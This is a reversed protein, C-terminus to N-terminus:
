VNNAASNRDAGCGAWCPRDSPPPGKLYVGCRVVIVNGVCLWGLCGTGITRKSTPGGNDGPREPRAVPSLAPLAIM